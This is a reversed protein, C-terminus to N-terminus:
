LNGSPYGVSTEIWLKGNSDECIYRVYSDPLTTAEQQVSRYVKIRCGDYRNLGSSTGFWMFGRSDKFITNIQSNSLGEPAEIHKFMYDKAQGVITFLMLFISIATKKGM